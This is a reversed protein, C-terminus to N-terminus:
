SYDNSGHKVLIGHSADAGVDTQENWTGIMIDDANGDTSANTAINKGIFIDVDGDFLM